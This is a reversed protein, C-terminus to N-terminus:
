IDRGDMMAKVQQIDTEVNGSPQIPALDSDSRSVLWVASPFYDDSFDVIEKRWALTTAGNAIVDGQIPEPDGYVVKNDIYQGNVGTLLGFVNTWKAPVYEYKVGLHAAFGQMIEVDLGTEIFGDGQAYQSVFNAYPVGLHRLVGAEQIEALDRPAAYSMSTGLCAVLFVQLFYTIKTRFSM